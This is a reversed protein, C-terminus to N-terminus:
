LGLEIYDAGQIGLSSKFKLFLLIITYNDRLFKKLKLSQEYEVSKDSQLLRKTKELKMITKSIHECINVHFKKAFILYIDYCVSLYM